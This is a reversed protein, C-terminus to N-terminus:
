LSSTWAPNLNLTKVSRPAFRADAAPGSSNTRRSASRVVVVLWGGAGTIAVVKGQLFESM